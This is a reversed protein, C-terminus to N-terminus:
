IQEEGDVVEQMQKVGEERSGGPHSSVVFGLAARLVIFAALVNKCSGGQFCSQWCDVIHKPCLATARM